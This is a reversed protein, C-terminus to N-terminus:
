LHGIHAPYKWLKHRLLTHHRGIRVRQKKHYTFGTDRLKYMYEQADTAKKSNVYHRANPSHKKVRSIKEKAIQWKYKYEEM